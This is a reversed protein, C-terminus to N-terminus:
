RLKWKLTAAAGGPFSHAPLSFETQEAFICPSLVYVGDEVQLSITGGGTAIRQPFEVSEESGCCLYLSLLDGFQLMDIWFEVEDHSRKELKSLCERRREEENVFRRVLAADAPSYHGTEIGFKGLRYFHGSVMLAAIPAVAEAAEISLRWAHLFDGAKIDLFSLPKGQEDLALRDPLYRAPTTRLRQHGADFEAWGEDHLSIGRVIEDSIPPMTAIALRQVLEGSLRAHDPQHVLLYNPAHIRHARAVAEWASIFGGGKHDDRNREPNLIM